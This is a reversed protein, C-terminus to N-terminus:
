GAMEQKRGKRQKSLAMRALAAHVRDSIRDTLVDPWKSVAQYSVGIAKAAATTGGLMELAKTKQM